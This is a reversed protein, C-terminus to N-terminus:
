LQCVLCAQAEDEDEFEGTYTEMLTRPRRRKAADERRKQEERKIQAVREPRELDELSEGQVWTYGEETKEYKKAQEFLDPHRELLGVWESRRQYFCFYCGSRSRWEYYSPIGVGSNELIRFVDAKRIGAERFPYVPTINPKTSIFGERNEDARLGVYLVVPEDRIEREFPEIKLKRTCWRMSPSPLYDRYIALFHDFGREGDGSSLRRIPKGLFSELRDLYEYTEPLEKHTDCFVYELDLEPHNDRMYIALATSDKGGSVLLVHRTQLEIASL